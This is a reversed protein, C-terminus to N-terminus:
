QPGPVCATSGPLRPPGPVFATSSPFRPPGSVSSHTGSVSLAVLSPYSGPLAMSPSRGPPTAVTHPPTAKTESPLSAEAPLLCLPPRALPGEPLPVPASSQPPFTEPPLTLAEAPLPRLPLRALPDEPLPAPASSELLLTEPPPPLTESPPTESLPTESPLAAPPLTEPAVPPPTDPAAPPPTEPAAPPPTDPAAPPSTKPAVAPPGAPTKVPPSLTESPPAKHVAVPPPLAEQVTPAEPVDVRSTPVEPGLIALPETVDQHHCHCSPCLQHLCTPLSSSPSLKHNQSSGPRPRCLLPRKSLCCLETRLSSSSSLSLQRHQHISSPSLQRHQLVDKSHHPLGGVWWPLLPPMRPSELGQACVMLRPPLDRLSRVWWFVPPPMLLFLAEGAVSVQLPLRSGQSNHCPHYSPAYWNGLASRSM